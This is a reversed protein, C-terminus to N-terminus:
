SPAEVRAIMGDLRHKGLFLNDTCLFHDITKKFNLSRYNFNCTPFYETVPEQAAKINRVSCYLEFSTEQQVMFETKSNLAGKWPLFIYLTHFYGCISHGYPIIAREEYIVSPPVLVSRCRLDRESHELLKKGLSSSVCNFREHDGNNGIQRTHEGCFIASWIRSMFFGSLCRWNSRKDRSNWQVQRKSIQHSILENIEIVQWEKEHKTM